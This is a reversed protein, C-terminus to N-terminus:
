PSIPPWDISRAQCPTLYRSSTSRSQLHASFVSSPSPVSPQLQHITVKEITQFLCARESSTTIHEESFFLLFGFGFGLSIVLHLILYASSTSSESSIPVAKGARPLQSCQTETGAPHRFHWALGPQQQRPHPAYPSTKYQAPENGLSSISVVSIKYFWWITLPLQM